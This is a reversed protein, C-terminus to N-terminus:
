SHLLEAYLDRYQKAVTEMSYREVARERGVHGLEAQRSEDSLIWEIGSALDAPDYPEALYGTEEHDIIDSPGTADFAVVPTGCALAESVTQGFGEYRSPVVMVDAASYLRPLRETEQIYGLYRTPFGFDPADDPESGGFVVLQILEKTRRTHLTRLAEYLLNFGKRPDSTAFQAGFLVIRKNEPLDFYERGLRSDVPAFQETDLANPIVDIRNDAFLSSQRASEKLWTSPAVVTIDANSWSNAKRKWTWRTLDFDRNSGLKPCAGCREEFKRCGDSYHCGGTFAWMDPLRWVIPAAINAISKVSFFGEGVWNLHIIDPDLPRLQRNIDGPLWNISFNGERHRYLKTPWSDTVIRGASYARRLYGEPGIVHPHNSRQHQVLMKAELGIGRLADLIRRTAIGAGGWDYTNLLVPKM